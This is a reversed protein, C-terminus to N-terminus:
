TAATLDLHNMGAIETECLWEGGEDRFICLYHSKLEDGSALVLTGNGIVYVCGPGCVRSTLTELRLGTAQMADCAAQLYAAIQARGQLVQQEPTIYRADAAYFGRVLETMAATGFRKEAVRCTRELGSGFDSDAENTSSMSIGALAIRPM